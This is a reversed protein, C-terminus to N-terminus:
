ILTSFPTVHKGPFLAQFIEKSTVHPFLFYYKLHYNLLYKFHRELFHKQIFDSEFYAKMSKSIRMLSIVERITLYRLLFIVKRQMNELYSILNFDEKFKMIKHEQLKTHEKESNYTNRVYSNNNFRESSPPTNTIPAQLPYDHIEGRLYKAFEKEQGKFNKSM